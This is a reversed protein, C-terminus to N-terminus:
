NTTFEEVPGSSRVTFRVWGDPLLSMPTATVAVTVQSGTSTVTVERGTLLRDGAARSMFDLARERGDAPTAAYARAADAGQQAAAQAVNRAHYLFGAQIAIVALVLLAPIVIAYELPSSGRDDTLGARVRHRLNAMLTTM